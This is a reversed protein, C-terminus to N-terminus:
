AHRVERAADEGGDCIPLQAAFGRLDNALERCWTVDTRFRLLGALEALAGAMAQITSGPTSAPRAAAAVRAKHERRVDEPHASALGCNCGAVPPTGRCM